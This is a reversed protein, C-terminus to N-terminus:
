YCYSMGCKIFGMFLLKVNLEFKRSKFYLPVKYHKLYSLTEGKESNPLKTIVRIEKHEVFGIICFYDQDYWAQPLPLTYHYHYHLSLLIRHLSSTITIHHCCYETYHPHLTYHALKANCTIITIHHM